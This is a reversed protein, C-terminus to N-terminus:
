KGALHAEVLELDERKDVDVGLEPYSTIIAKVQADFLDEAKNELTKVYLRGFFYRLVFTLGLMSLISVPRKRLGFLRKTTKMNRLFADKAVLHVNGGTFTGDRLRLYTRHSGPFLEETTERRIISYYVEAKEQRCKDIFGKIAASHILPTDSSVVLIYGDKGLIDIAKEIADIVDTTGEVFREALGAFRTVDVGVPLTVVIERLDTCGALAEMVYSLMPQGCIEILSKPGSFAPDVKSAEGGALVIVDIDVLM